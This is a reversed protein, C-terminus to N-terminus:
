AALYFGIILVLSILIYADLSRRLGVVGRLEMFYLGVLRVKVYAVAMIVIAVVERGVEHGLLWSFATAVVLVIWVLVEPVKLALIPRSAVLIRIKNM